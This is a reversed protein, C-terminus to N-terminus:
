GKKEGEKGKREGEEKEGASLGTKEEEEKEEKTSQAARGVTSKLQLM